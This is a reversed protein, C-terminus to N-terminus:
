LSSRLRRGILQGFGTLRRGKTLTDLTRELQRMLEREYRGLKNLVDGDLFLAALARGSRERAHREQRVEAALWKESGRTQECSIFVGGLTVATARHHKHDCAESWALLAAEFTPVRRLRWFLQALRDVLLAEAASLPTLERALDERLAEFEAPNEGSLVIQRATLGHRLANASSAAKGAETKPGTSKLANVQNARIQRETAM